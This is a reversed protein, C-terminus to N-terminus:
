REEGVVCFPPCQSDSLPHITAVDFHSEQHKSRSCPSREVDCFHSKRECPTPPSYVELDAATLVDAGPGEGVGAASRMLQALFADPEAASGVTAAKVPTNAPEACVCVCM